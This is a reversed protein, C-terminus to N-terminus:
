GEFRVYELDHPGFYDTDELAPCGVTEDITHAEKHCHHCRHLFLRPSDDAAGPDVPIPSGDHTVWVIADRGSSTKRREGSDRALGKLVLERRRASITQHRGNLHRELEEDTAGGLFRLANHVRQRMSPARDGLGAAAAISTDTDNHPVGTDRYGSDRFIDLSDRDTM